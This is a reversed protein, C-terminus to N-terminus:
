QVIIFITKMMEMCVAVCMFDWWWWLSGYYSMYFMMSTTTATTGEINTVMDNEMAEGYMGTVSMLSM